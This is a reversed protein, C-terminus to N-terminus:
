IRENIYVGSQEAPKGVLYKESKESSRTVTTTVGGSIYVRGCEPCISTKLIVSQSVVERGERRAKAQDRSVHENEHARVASAASDPSISTPTQYSVGPDNSRDQYKRSSCTGCERKRAARMSNILGAKDSPAMSGPEKGQDSGAAQGMLAEQAPSSPKDAFARRGPPASKEPIANQEAATTQTARVAPILSQGSPTGQRSINSPGANLPKARQQYQIFRDYPSLKGNDPNIAEIM